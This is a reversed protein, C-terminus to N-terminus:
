LKQLAPNVSQLNNTADTTTAEQVNDYSVGM